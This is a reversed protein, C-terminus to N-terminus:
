SHTYKYFSLSLFSCAQAPQDFVGLLQQLFIFLPQADFNQLCQSLHHCLVTTISLLYSFSGLVSNTVQYADDVSYTEIYLVIFIHVVVFVSFIYFSLNITTNKCLIETCLFTM